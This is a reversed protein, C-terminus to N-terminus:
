RTTYYELYEASEKSRLYQLAFTINAAVQRLLALEADGFVGPERADLEVVGIVALDICLPLAIRSRSDEPVEANAGLVATREGVDNLDNIIILKATALAQSFTSVGEPLRNTIHWKGGSQRGEGYSCVLPPAGAVDNPLLYITARTYGGVSVALRCAERLLRDRDRIRM